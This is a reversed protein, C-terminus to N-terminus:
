AWGGGDWYGAPSEDLEYVLDKLEYFKESEWKTDWDGIDHIEYNLWDRFKLFRVPGSSCPYAIFYVTLETWHPDDHGDLYAEWTSQSPPNTPCASSHNQQAYVADWWDWGETAFAETPSLSVALAFTLAAFLARTRHNKM